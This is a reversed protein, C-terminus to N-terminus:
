DDVPVMEPTSQHVLKDVVNSLADSSSFLRKAKENLLYATIALLSSRRHLNEDIAKEAGDKDWENGILSRNTVNVLSVHYPMNASNSLKQALNAADVNIHLEVAKKVNDPAKALASVFANYEQNTENNKDAAELTLCLHIKMKTQHLADIFEKAIRDKLAQMKNTDNYSADHKPLNRLFAGMSFPVLVIEKVGNKAAANLTNSFRTKMAKVYTNENLTYPPGSSIKDMDILQMFDDADEFNIAGAHHVFFPTQQEQIEEWKEDFDMLCPTTLVSGQGLIKNDNFDFSDILSIRQLYKELDQPIEEEATAKLVKELTKDRAAYRKQASIEPLAKHFEKVNLGLKDARLNGQADKTEDKKLPKIDNIQKTDKNTKAAPAEVEDASTANKSKIADAVSEIKEAKEQLSANAKSILYAAIGLGILGGIVGLAITVAASSGSLVGFGVLLASGILIAVAIRIIKATISLRNIEQKPESLGLITPQTLARNIDVQM